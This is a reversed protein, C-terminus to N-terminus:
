PHRGAWPDVAKAELLMSQNDLPLKMTPLDITQATPRNPPQNSSRLHIVTPGRFWPLEIKDM